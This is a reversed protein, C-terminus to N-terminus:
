ISITKLRDNPNYKRGVKACPKGDVMVVDATFDIRESFFYSGIGIADFPVNLKVFQDIKEPNFGGSIVIKVYDFGEKDLANRVNRVLQPGVGKEKLGIREISADVLNEATDLRVGWLRKKLAKAVELSTKVCDNDFDVLAIRRVDKPVCRDFALSADVTNGNYAAILGHPITGIGKKGILIGNADTSVGDAGGIFAAYGDGEQNLFHDFRSSFFLLEKNHLKERCKRVLTAVASRRALIGLYVTELHAFLSYDGEITMVTEWPSFPEGDNLAKISLGDSKSVSNKIVYTAEMGGCFIGNKKAFIQMLVRPHKKEKILINGTRVFYKDSYYGKKLRDFCYNLYKFDPYNM